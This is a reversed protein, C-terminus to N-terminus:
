ERAGTTCTLKFRQSIKGVTTFIQKQVATTNSTALWRKGPCEMNQAMQIVDQCSEYFTRTNMVKGM